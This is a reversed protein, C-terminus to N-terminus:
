IEEGKLIKRQYPMFRKLFSMAEAETINYKPHAKRTQAVAMNVAKAYQSMNEPLIKINKPDIFSREISM